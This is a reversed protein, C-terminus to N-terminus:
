KLGERLKEGVFDIEEETLFPHMPLSIIEQMLKEAVPFDGKTYGLFSCAPQLHVPTSYHIGTFIEQEKLYDQLNDREKVRAVYLHYVHKGYSMEKPLILGKIDGLIENYKKAVTRRMSNWEDLKKLKVNLVAAQLSELRYNYGVLNHTNKPKEGHARFVRAKDILEEDSGTIMGGEGFAGLNKAPYFSFCALDGISGAKKGNYEAGHAQCADEIIKLSHKEAIEKIPKMDCCQGFLHVPIIAKTKSTIKEELLEPDMNFSEEKADVFVPKAGSHLIAEVTAFFTNPVTIVEDGKGIGLSLLATHLAATGSNVGVAFKTGCYSAFNEEFLEVPKGLIFSTNDVIGKIAEDIEKRIPEHMKKLDVFNVKM